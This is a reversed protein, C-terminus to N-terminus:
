RQAQRVSDCARPLRRSSCNPARFNSDPTIRSSSARAAPLACAWCGPVQPAKVGVAAALEVHRERSSKPEIKMSTHMPARKKAIGVTENQQSPTARYESKKTEMM